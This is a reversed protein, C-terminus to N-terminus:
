SCLKKKRADYAATLSFQFLTITPVDKGLSIGVIKTKDGLSSFFSHRCILIGQYPVLSYVVTQSVSVSSPREIIEHIGTALCQVVHLTDGFTHAGPSYLHIYLDHPRVLQAVIRRYLHVVLDVVSIGVGAIGDRLHRQRSIVAFQYLLGDSKKPVLLVSVIGPSPFDQLFNLVPKGGNQVENLM